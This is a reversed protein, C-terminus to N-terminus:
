AQASCRAAWEQEFREKNVRKWDIQYIVRFHEKRATTRRKVPVVRVQLGEYCAVGDEHCGQYTTGDGRTITVIKTAEDIADAILDGILKM